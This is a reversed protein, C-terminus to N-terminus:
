RKKDNRLKEVHRSLKIEFIKQEISGSLALVRAEFFRNPFDKKEILSQLIKQGRQIEQYRNSTRDRRSYNRLVRYDKSISGHSYYYGGNIWECLYLKVWPIFSSNPFLKIFEEIKEIEKLAHIKWSCFNYLNYNGGKNLISSYIAAANLFNEDIWKKANTDKEDHNIITLNVINSTYDTKVGKSSFTEERTRLKIQGAKIPLIDIQEKKIDLSKENNFFLHIWEIEKSVSQGPKLFYTRKKFPEAPCYIFTGEDYCNPITLSQWLRDGERQYEFIPFVEVFTTNVWFHSVDITKNSINKLFITYYIPEDIKITDQYLRLGIEITDHNNINQANLQWNISTLFTIIFLYKTKM